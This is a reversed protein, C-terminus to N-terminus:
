PLPKPIKMKLITIELQLEDLISQPYGKNKMEALLDKKKVLSKHWDTATNECGEDRGAAFMAGAMSSPIYEKKVLHGCISCPRWKDEPLDKWGM